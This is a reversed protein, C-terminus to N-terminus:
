VSICTAELPFMLSDKIEHFKIIEISKIFAPHIGKSSNSSFYM